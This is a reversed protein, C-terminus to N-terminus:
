IITLMIIPFVTSIRIRTGLVNFVDRIWNTYMYIPYDPCDSVIRLMSCMYTSYSPM